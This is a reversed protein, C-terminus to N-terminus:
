KSIDLGLREYQEKPSDNEQMIKIMEAILREETKEDKIPTNQLPDKSLDYLATEWKAQAQPNWDCHVSKLLKCGKTFDFTTGYEAEKLEELAMFARGTGHHTPMLWYEYLPDNSKKAPSRMYVYRGDTINMQGGHIGFIAADRVPEDNEIVDKLPKGLMDKPIEINFFDLVTPAIDITQVLSTRRENSKKYRPDWIFFPTNAIENFFPFYCKAWHGHEALMYGHDTNVILMTDEWLNHADFTDLVKGLYKDCMTVLAYHCNKAYEVEEPTESVTRYPPWDFIPGNYDDPYMKKFEEPVFFPEHPDFTEIQLFWNDSNHNKEIFELGLEFTVAQSQKEECDMYQRNVMNQRHWAPSETANKTLSYDPNQLVGKWPDCEQGRVFEFSMYREHYTAGGDEFYHYHDTILHSYIGNNKLIEPMSDDYPEIPGWSRHLFNSRGTHLERRAPMCPMSCVYSNDFTVGKEALRKFNPTSVFDCGYPELFRKSLSDFMVMVVKM